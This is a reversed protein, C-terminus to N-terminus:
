STTSELSLKSKTEIFQDITANLFPYGLGSHDRIEEWVGKLANFTRQDWNLLLKTFRHLALGRKVQLHGAPFVSQAITLYERANQEAEELRGLHVNIISRDRKAPGLCCGTPGQLNDLLNLAQDSHIIASEWSGTAAVALTHAMKAEVVMMESIRMVPQDAHNMQNQVKSSVGWAKEVLGSRLYLHTLGNSNEVYSEDFDGELSEILAINEILAKISEDVNGLRMYALALETRVKLIRPSNKGWINVYRQYLNEALSISEEGGLIASSFSILQLELELAYPHESGVSEVVINRAEHYRAKASDVKDQQLDNEALLLVIKAKLLQDTHQKEEFLNLSETLFQYSLAVEGLQLYAEGIEKSSEVIFSDNGESDISLEHAALGHELQLNYEATEYAVQAAIIHAKIRLASDGNVDDGLISHALSWAKAQEGTRNFAEALKISLQSKTGHDLSPINQINRLGENLRGIISAKEQRSVTEINGIGMIDIIMSSVQESTQKEMEVLMSKNHQDVLKVVFIIAMLSLTVTAMAAISNRQLFKKTRYWSSTPHAFVVEGALYRSVDQALESVSQYRTERSKKTAKLYISDLENDLQKKLSAKNEGRNKILTDKADETIEQFHASPTPAAFETIMSIRRCLDLGTMRDRDFPIRGVLLSFLVMGLSYVDARADIDSADILHEPSMYEPTGVMQDGGWSIKSDLDSSIGFDIITPSHRNEFERVLINSSKLDRHLIGRQHSYTIADCIGVFLELRDRLSLQKNDCYALLEKGKIYEMVIFSMGQDTTEVTHIAAINPHSLKALAKQEFRFFDIYEGPADPRVLKIIVERRVPHKQFARYVGSVSGEHLLSELTYGNLTQGVWEEAFWKESLVIRSTLPKDLLSITRDLTDLMRILKTQTPEDLGMQLIRDSREVHPLESVQDFLDMLKHWDYEGAIPKRQENLNSM